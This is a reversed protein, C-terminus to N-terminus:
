LQTANKYRTTTLPNLLSPLSFTNKGWVLELHHTPTLYTTERILLANLQTETAPMWGIKRNKTLLEYKKYMCVTTEESFLQRQVILIYCQFINPFTHVIKLFQPSTTPIKGPEATPLFYFYFFQPQHTM